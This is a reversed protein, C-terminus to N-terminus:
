RAYRVRGRYAILLRSEFNRKYLGETFKHRSNHHKHRSNHHKHRSSHHKHRSKYMWDNTGRTKFNTGHCSQGYLHWNETDTEIKHLKLKITWHLYVISLITPGLSEQISFKVKSIHYCVYNVEINATYFM